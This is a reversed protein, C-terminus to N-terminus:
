CYLETLTKEVEDLVQTWALGSGQRVTTEVDIFMQVYDVALKDSKEFTQIAERVRRKKDAM